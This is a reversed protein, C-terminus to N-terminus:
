TAEADYPAHRRSRGASSEGPGGPSVAKAPHGNASGSNRTGSSVDQAPDSTGAQQAAVGDVTSRLDAVEKRVDDIMPEVDSLLHRQVFTRPNLDRIDMDEFGPGLEKSLQQQASGAVTRLYRVVRAAKRALEPLKDPGFLIVATVLLLLFEPTGIDLLLPVMM